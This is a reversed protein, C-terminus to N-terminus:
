GACRAGKGSGSGHTVFRVGVAILAMAVAKQWTLMDLGLLIGVTAAVAPQVYNYTAVTPADLRQQATILLLYSLFSGGVVVYLAGAGAASTLEGWPAAAVHWGFLPLTVLASFGFLWKMMTIPSYRHLVGGFFVFYCAAAFQAFLCLADGLPHGSVGGTARSGLILVLAGCAALAMGFVKKGTTHLHLYLVSLLLTFVPTTTAAVTGNTPSTLQMGCVYCFQNISMGCLSMGFLPLLDRARVRERPRALSVLWFLLAAGSVRLEALTLGDIVGGQMAVKCMPSMLGFCLMAALASIHGTVVRRAPQADAPM